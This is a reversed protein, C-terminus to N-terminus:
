PWAIGFPGVYGDKAALYVVGSSSAVCGEEDAVLLNPQNPFLTTFTLEGEKCLWLEVVYRPSQPSERESDPLLYADWKISVQTDDRSASINRLTVDLASVPLPAKEPYYPELVSALDPLRVSRVDVWCSFDLDVAQVYLWDSAQDRGMVQLKTGWLLSTRYLYLNGPGYRCATQNAIISGTLQQYTVPTSTPTATFRLTRTPAPTATKPKPTPLSPTNTGTEAPLSAPTETLTSDLAPTGTNSPPVQRASLLMGMAVMLLFIIFLPLPKGIWATLTDMRSPKSEPEPTPDNNLPKM